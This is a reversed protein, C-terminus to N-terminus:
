RRPSRKARLRLSTSSYSFSRPKAVYPSSTYSGCALSPASRICWMSCRPSSSSFAPSPSPSSVISPTFSPSSHTYAPSVIRSPTSEVRRTRAREAPPILTSSPLSTRPSSSEYSPSRSATSSSSSQRPSYALSTRVHQQSSIQRDSSTSGKGRSARSHGSTWM